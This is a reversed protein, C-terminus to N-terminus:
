HIQSREVTRKVSPYRELGIARDPRGTARGRRWDHPMVNVNM